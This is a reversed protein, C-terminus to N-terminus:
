AVKLLTLARDAAQNVAAAATGSRVKVFKVALWDSLSLLVMQGALVSVSREIGADYIPAYTVGDPSGLFTLAATTWSAPMIIGALKGDVQLAGSLSTGSTITVTGSTPPPAVAFDPDASTGAVMVGLRALINDLVTKALDQRASTSAGTPLSVTGTINRLDWNGYQGASVSLTSALEAAIYKALAILSADGSGGWAADAPDGLAAAQIDLPNGPAILGAGNRAAYLDSLATM